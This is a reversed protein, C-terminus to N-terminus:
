NNRKLYYRADHGLKDRLTVDANHNLLMSVAEDDGNLIAWILPTRQYERDRFNPNAGKNLLYDLAEYNRYKVAYMVPSWYNDDLTDLDVDKGNEVVYRLIDMRKHLIPYVLLSRGKDDLYLFSVDNVVFFKIMEFNDDKLAYAVPSIHKDDSLSVDAGHAVLKKVYDWRRNMSAYFLASRGKDDSLNIYVGWPIKFRRPSSRSGGLLKLLYDVNRDQRKIVSLILSTRGHEDDVLLLDTSTVCGGYKSLDRGERIASIVFSSKGYRSFSGRDFPKEGKAFSFIEEYVVMCRAFDVNPVRQKTVPSSLLLGSILFEKLM